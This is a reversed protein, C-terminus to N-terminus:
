YLMLCELHCWQFLKQSSSLYYLHPTRIRNNSITNVELLQKKMKKDSNLQSKPKVAVDYTESASGLRGGEGKGFM